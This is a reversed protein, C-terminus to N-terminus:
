RNPSYQERRGIRDTRATRDKDDHISADDENHGAFPDEDDDEFGLDIGKSAMEADLEARMEAEAKYLREELLRAFEDTYRKKRLPPLTPQKPPPPQKPGTGNKNGSGNGGTGSMDGFLNKKVARRNDRELKAIEPVFEVLKHKSSRTSRDM